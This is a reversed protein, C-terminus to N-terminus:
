WSPKQLGAREYYEAPIAKPDKYLLMRCPEEGPRDSPDMLFLPIGTEEMGVIEHFICHACYAPYDPKGYTMLQPTKVRYFDRPPGDYSGDRVLKGGSGCPEMSFIFKEADEEIRVAVGHGKLGYAFMKARARPDEVKVYERAAQRVWSALMDHLAEHLVEDGFRRGIFSLTATVMTVEIDHMAILENYMRRVLKKAKGPDGEDIANVILENTRKGMDELEQDTFLRGETM